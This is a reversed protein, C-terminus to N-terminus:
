PELSVLCHVLPSMSADTEKEAHHDHTADTLTKQLFRKTEAALKKLLQQQTIKIEEDCSPPHPPRVTGRFLKPWVRLQRYHYCIPKKSALVYPIGNWKNSQSPSMATGISLCLLVGSIFLSLRFVFRMTRLWKPDLSNSCPKVIEQNHDDNIIGTNRRSLALWYEIPREPTQDFAQPLSASTHRCFSVLDNNRSREDGAALHEIRQFAIQAKSCEGQNMWAYGLWYCTACTSEHYLGLVADQVELADRFYVISDQFRRQSLLSRGILYSTRATDKHRLGLVSAQATLAENLEMLSFRGYWQWTEDYTWQQQQQQQQQQGTEHGM